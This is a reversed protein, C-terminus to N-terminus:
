KEDKQKETYDDLIDILKNAFFIFEQITNFHLFRYSSEENNIKQYMEISIENDFKVTCEKGKVSFSYSNDKRIFNREM